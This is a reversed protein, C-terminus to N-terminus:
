YWIAVQLGDKSEPPDPLSVAEGKAIRNASWAAAAADLVDDIPAIRCRLIITEYYGRVLAAHEGTELLRRDEEDRADHM